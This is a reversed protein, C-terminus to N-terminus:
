RIFTKRFADKRRIRDGEFEFIDCGRTEVRRGEEAKVYSWEAIGLDGLVACRGGRSESDGDHALMRRFGAEVAAHGRFTEGPEPGVSAQYICDDTMFTMLTAVDGQAWATNFQELRELTMKAM